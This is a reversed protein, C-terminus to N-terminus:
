SIQKIFLRDVYHCLLHAPHDRNYVGWKPYNSGDDLTRGIFTKIGPTMNNNQDRLFAQQTGNFSLRLTGKNRDRSLLVRLGIDYWTDAQIPSAWVTLFDGRYNSHILNLQNNMVRFLFPYNQTADPNSKWQFIIYDGHEASFTETLKSSWSIDYVDDELWQEYATCPPQNIRIGNSECRYNSRDAPKDFRWVKGREGDRVVSISAENGPDSIGLEVRRFIELPSKSEDPVHINQPSTTGCWTLLKKKERTM